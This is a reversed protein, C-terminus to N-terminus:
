FLLILAMVVFALLWYGAVVLYYRVPKQEWLVMGLMTPAAFGIWCWFGLELASIWDSVGWAIGFYNMVYAAVMAGILAVIASLWMRKKGRAAMEPTVGAICMWYSGFVSPHYWIWGILVSAIGAALVPWFTVTVM